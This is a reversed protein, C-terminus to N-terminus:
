CYDYDIMTMEERDDKRERLSENDVAQSLVRFADDIPCPDQRAYLALSTLPLRRLTRGSLNTSRAAIKWLTRPLSEEDPPFHLMMLPHPPLDTADVVHIADQSKPARASHTPPPPSSFPTYFVDASSSPSSAGLSAWGNALEDEDEDLLMEQTSHEFNAVESSQRIPAIIGCQALELYCSRLIEYRARPGPGPIHEKVDIRDLFASDVADISNSTCFVLVNPRHRLRDLAILLANVARMSDQPENFSGSYQRKVALSEIEDLFVCIMTNNDENLMSEIMDFVQGVVKGSEGFYQSFMSHADFEVLKCHPFTKGLRISLKQALARCLSTKGTGPPGYFLLFKSWSPAHQRPQRASFSIMRIIFKLLRFQVLDEFILSDWVGHLNKNPLNMIRAQPRPVDDAADQAIRTRTAESPEILDEDGHLEFVDVNINVAPLHIDNHSELDKSTTLDAITIFNIDALKHFEDQSPFTQELKVTVYHKRLWREVKDALKTRPLSEPQNTCCEVHLTPKPHAAKAPSVATGVM